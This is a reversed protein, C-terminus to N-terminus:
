EPSNRYWISSPRLLFVIIDTVDFLLFSPNMFDQLKLCPYDTVSFLPVYINSCIYIPEYIFRLMVIAFIVSKVATYKVTISHRIM